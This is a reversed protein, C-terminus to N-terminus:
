LIVDCERITSLRHAIILSTRGKLLTKLSTQIMDETLSDINSTAEDLIVIRPNIALARTISILQREGPSLNSGNEHIMTDYSKELKAIFRDQVLKIHLMKLM